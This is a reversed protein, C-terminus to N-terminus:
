HIVAKSKSKFNTNKTHKSTNLHQLMQFRKTVPVAQDCIICYLIKGDTKFVECSFEEVSQRLRTSESQVKLM